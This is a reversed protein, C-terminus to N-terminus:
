YLGLYTGYNQYGFATDNMRMQLQTGAPFPGYTPITPTITTFSDWGSIVVHYQSLPTFNIGCQVFMHGDNHGDNCGFQPYIAGIDRSLTSGISTWSGWSANGATVNTGITSTTNVGIGEARVYSKWPPNDFGGHLIVVVHVVRSATSSQHRCSIRSGKPIFLPLFTGMPGGAQINEHSCDFYNEILLQESGAGGVAFDLLSNLISGTGASGYTLITVGFAELTSSSIIETWSGKTNASGAATVATGNNKAVPASAFNHQWAGMGTKPILLPM